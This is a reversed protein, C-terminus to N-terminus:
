NNLRENNIVLWDYLFKILSLKKTIDLKTNKQKNTLFMKKEDWNLSLLM